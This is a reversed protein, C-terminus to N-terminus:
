LEDPAPDCPAVDCLDVCSRELDGGRGIHRLEGPAARNADAGRMEVCNRELDRDRGFNRLEDAPRDVNISADHLGVCDREMRDNSQSPLGDALEGLLGMARQHSRARQWGLVLSAFHKRSGPHLGHTRRGVAVCHCHM